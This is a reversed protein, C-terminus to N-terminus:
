CPFTIRFISTLWTMCRYSSRCRRAFAAAISYDFWIKFLFPHRAAPKLVVPTVNGAYVFQKSFNRDFFFIFEDDPRLKVLRRCVEDTFRAVGEMGRPLLLRTNVAIRKGTKSM